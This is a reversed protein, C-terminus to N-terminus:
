RRLIVVVPYHDSGLRPGREVSVTKWAKGAYVHDIPLFPKPFGVRRRSFPAAPWTPLARTRRELGFLRDQRRLSSSWPTSNFDGAVIASDRSLGDLVRTMDRTMKQQPGGPFPWVYHAGIVSFEGAATRWTARAAPLAHRSNILGEASVPKRRSLILTACPAPADCTTQYPYLDALALPIGESAGFAEELVVVDANQRRIWAAAAEPTLNRGWLNFQVLKLTEGTAPAKPGAPRLYEPLILGGALVIAAIATIPTATRLNRGGAAAWLVLGIVGLLLWYPAFHSFADLDDSFRGAQAALAAAAGVVAAAMAAIRLLVAIFALLKSM